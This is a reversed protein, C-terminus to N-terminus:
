IAQSNFNTGRCDYSLNLGASDIRSVRPQRRGDHQPRCSDSGGWKALFQIRRDIAGTANQHLGIEAKSIMRLHEDDTIEGRHFILMALHDWTDGRYGDLLAAEDRFQNAAFNLRGVGRSGWGERTRRSFTPINVETRREVVPIFAAQGGDATRRRHRLKAANM